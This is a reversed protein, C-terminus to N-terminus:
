LMPKKLPDQELTRLPLIQKRMNFFRLAKRPCHFNDSFTFSIYSVVVMRSYSLDLFNQGFITALAQLDLWAFIKCSSWLWYQRFLDM